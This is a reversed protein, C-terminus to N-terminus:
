YYVSVISYLRITFQYYLIYDLLISISYFISYLFVQSVPNAVECICMSEIEEVGESQSVCGESEAKLRKV